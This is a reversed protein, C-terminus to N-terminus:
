RKQPQALVLLETLIVAQLKEKMRSQYALYLSPGFKTRDDGYQLSLWISTIHSDQGPVIGIKGIDDDFGPGIMWIRTEVLRDRRWWIAVRVRVLSDVLLM